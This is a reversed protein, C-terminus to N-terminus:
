RAGEGAELRKRISDLIGNVFPVAQEQSYARALEIAENIVVAPPTAPQHLLEFVALRLILRDIIALRELRWNEAAESILPDITALNTATGRVLAEARADRERDVPRLAVQRDPVFVDDLELGGVEWQYLWQLAGERARRRADSPPDTV